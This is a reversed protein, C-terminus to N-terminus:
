RQLAYCPSAAVGDGSCHEAPLQARPPRAVMAPRPLPVAEVPESQRWAFPWASAAFQQIRHTSGVRRVCVAPRRVKRLRTQFSVRHEREAQQSVSPPIGHRGEGSRRVLPPHAKTSLSSTPSQAMASPVDLILPVHGGAVTRLLATKRKTEIRSSIWSPLPLPKRTSSPRVRKPSLAEMHTRPLLPQDACTQRLHM